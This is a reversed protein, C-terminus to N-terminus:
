KERIGSEEQIKGPNVSPYTLEYTLKNQPKESLYEDIQSKKIIWKSVIKKAPIKGTRILKYASNRGIGLYSCLEEINLYEKIEM